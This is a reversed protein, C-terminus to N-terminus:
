DKWILKTDSLPSSGGLRVAGFKSHLCVRIDQEFTDEYLNPMTVQKM